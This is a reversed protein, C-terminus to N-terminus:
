LVLRDCVCSEILVLADDPLGDALSLSAGAPATGNVERIPASCILFVKRSNGGCRKWGSDGAFRCRGFDAGQLTAENATCLGVCAPEPPEAATSTGTLAAMRCEGCSVIGGRTARGKTSESRSAKGCCVGSLPPDLPEAPLPAARLSEAHHPGLEEGRLKNDSLASDAEAATGSALGLESLVPWLSPWSAALASGSILRSSCISISSKSSPEGSNSLM